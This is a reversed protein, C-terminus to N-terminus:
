PMREGPLHDAAGDDKPHPLDDPLTMPDIM